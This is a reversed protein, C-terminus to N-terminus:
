RIKKSIIVVTGGEPPFSFRVHDVLSKVVFLGRGSSKIHNEEALPNPLNDPDFGYGEDAVSIEIEGQRSRLTVSFKKEPDRENGHEIANNVLESVALTLDIIADKPINRDRLWREVDDDVRTLQDLSSPYRVTQQDHTM